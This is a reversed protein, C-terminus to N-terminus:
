SLQFPRSISTLLKKSRPGRYKEYLLFSPLKVRLNFLLKLWRGNSVPVRGNLIQVPYAILADQLQELSPRDKEEFIKDLLHAVSGQMLSKLNPHKTLVIDFYKIYSQRMLASNDTLNFAHKRYYAAIMPAYIYPVKQCLLDLVLERDECAKLRVDFQQRDLIERKFLMAQQLLPFPSDALFDPCILLRKILQEPTLEGVIHAKRDVIRNSRDVYVREYDSYIVAESDLDKVCSLQLKLKDPHLWDDADLFQIWSGKTLPIGANRAASVGQNEQFFYQVNPYQQLLTKVVAQTNDTSGDDVLICEVEPYSQALVSEVAQTIYDAKNFTTIVVSVLRSM